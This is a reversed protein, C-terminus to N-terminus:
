KVFNSGTKSVTMLTNDSKRRLKLGVSVVTEATNDVVKTQKTLKATSKEVLTNLRHKYEERLMRIISTEILQMDNKM